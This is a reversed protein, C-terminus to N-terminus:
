NFLVRSLKMLAPAVILAPLYNGIEVKKIEFIILAIYTMILGSCAHFVGLLGQSALWPEIRDGLLTFGSLFAAVPIAALMATWGFLRAFSLAALCDMVAKIALPQFYRQLGDELAGIIGLPAACFLLAAAMLGDSAANKGETSARELKAKANQGLRNMWAQIGLLKGILHGLVMAVLVIGLKHLFSGSSDPKLGIWVLKLGFFSTAVGLLVKIQHQLRASIEIKTVLGFVAGLFIAGSNLLTGLM